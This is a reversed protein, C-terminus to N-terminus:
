GNNKELLIKILDLLVDKTLPVESRKGIRLWMGGGDFLRQVEGKSHCPADKGMLNSYQKKNKDQIFWQLKLMDDVIKSSYCGHKDTPILDMLRKFAELSETKDTM